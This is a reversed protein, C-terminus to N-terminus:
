RKTDSSMTGDIAVVKELRKQAERLQDHEAKVWEEHDFVGNEGSTKQVVTKTPRDEESIDKLEETVTARRNVVKAYLNM